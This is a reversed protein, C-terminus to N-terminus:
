LTYIFDPRNDGAIWVQTATKGELMNDRQGSRRKRNEIRLMTYIFITGGLLCVIQYALVTGHGTWYRPEEQDLFINSSVVGLAFTLKFGTAPRPIAYRKSQGM